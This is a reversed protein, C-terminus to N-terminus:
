VHCVAVSIFQVSPAKHVEHASSFHVPRVRVRVRVRSRTQRNTLTHTAQYDLQVSIFRNSNLNVLGLRLGLGLWLGLDAQKNAHTHSPLRATTHQVLSRSTAPEVGPREVALYCGQALQECM